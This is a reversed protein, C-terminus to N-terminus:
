QTSIVRSCSKQSILALPRSSRRSRQIPLRKRAAGAMRSSITVPTEPPTLLVQDGSMVATRGCITWRQPFLIRCSPFTAMRHLCVIRIGYTREQPQDPQSFNKWDANNGNMGGVFAKIATRANALEDGVVGYENQLKTLVAEAVGHATNAANDNKSTHNPAEAAAVVWFAEAAAEIEGTPDNVVTIYNQPSGWSAHRVGDAKLAAALADYPDAALATLGVSLSTMVMLVAMFVSLAKKSIKM